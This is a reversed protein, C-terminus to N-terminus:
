TRYATIGKQIIQQTQTGFYQGVPSTLFSQRSILADAYEKAATQHDTLIRLITVRDRQNIAPKINIWETVVRQTASELNNIPTTLKLAELANIYPQKRIMPSDAWMQDSVSHCAMEVEPWRRTVENSPMRPSISRIASYLRDLNDSLTKISREIFQTDRQALTVPQAAITSVLCLIPLTFKM